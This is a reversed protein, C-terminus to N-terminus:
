GARELVAETGAETLRRDSMLIVHQLRRLSPSPTSSLQRRM